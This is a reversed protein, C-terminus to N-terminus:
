CRVCRASTKQTPSPYVELSRRRSRVVQTMLKSFNLENATGEMDPSTKEDMRGDSSAAM